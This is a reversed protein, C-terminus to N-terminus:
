PATEQIARKAEQKVGVPDVFTDFSNQRIRISLLAIYVTTAAHLLHCGYVEVPITSTSFAVIGIKSVMTGFISYTNLMVLMRHTDWTYAPGVVGVNCGIPISRNSLAALSFFAVRPTKLLVIALTRVLVYTAPAVFVITVVCKGPVTAMSPVLATVSLVWGQMYIAWNTCSLCIDMTDAAQSKWTRALALLTIGVLCFTAISLSARQEVGGHLTVALHAWAFIVKTAQTWITCAACINDSFGTRNYAKASHTYWMHQLPLIDGIRHPIVHAPFFMFGHM